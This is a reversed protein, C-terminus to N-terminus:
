HIFWETVCHTILLVHRYYVALCAVSLLLSPLIQRWPLRAAGFAPTEWALLREVRRSVLATTSLLGTTFPPPEQLSVLEALKILAGALDLADKREHVAAEDAAFEAAVLWAQELSRMGPFPAAHAILKKLNDRAWLHSVEHQMAMQLESATLAAVADESVLVQPFFVGSLLLPLGRQKVQMVSAPINARDLLQGDRTWAVVVQSAHRRATWARFLGAGFLLVACISFILTGLDEDIANTELLLFAPLAFILTVILSAALPSVRLAYLFRARAIASKGCVLVAARWTCVVVVSLLCYVVGMFALAVMVSRLDFIM